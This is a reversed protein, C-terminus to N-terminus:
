GGSPGKSASKPAPPRRAPSASRKSRPASRATPPPLANEAEALRDAAAARTTEAGQVEEILL